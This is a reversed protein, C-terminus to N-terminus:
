AQSQTSSFAGRVAYMISVFLLSSFLVTGSMVVTFHDRMLLLQPPEDTTPPSRKVPGDVAQNPTSERWAQWEARAEPTDMERLVEARFSLLYIVLAIMTVLYVALWVLNATRRSKVAQPATSM